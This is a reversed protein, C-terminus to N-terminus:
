CSTPHLDVFQCNGILLYAKGGMDNCLNLHATCVDMSIVGCVCPSTPETLNWLSKEGEQPPVCLYFGALGM